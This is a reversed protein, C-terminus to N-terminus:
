WEHDVPQDDTEQRNAVEGELSLQATGSAAMEMVEDAVEDSPRKGPDIVAVGHMSAIRRYVEQIRGGDGRGWESPDAVERALVIDLDPLLVIVHVPMSMEALGRGYHRVDDPLVVDGIVVGYGGAVFRTAM